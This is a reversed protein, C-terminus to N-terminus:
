SLHDKPEVSEVSGTPGDAPRDDAAIAWQRGLAWPAGPDVCVLQYVSFASKEFAVAAGAMFARWIRYVSDGGAAIASEKNRELNEIWRRLTLAYNVRLAEADRVEWGAREALEISREVPVLEGDPFVYTSIFSPRHVSPLRLGEKPRHRQSIGHNLLAGGPRVLHRLHEFYGALRGRGVHEFMGVSAVADFDGDLDRYDRELITVRDTLGLDKVRRRAYEAQAPSLTTGVAEAGYDRAARIALAGWGCGVDLFRQGPQLQLKRLVLDLKRAQAADLPEDPRLFYACSYVMEEGLFQEYFENGTDYHSRVAARDRTRSHRRGQMQPRVAAKRRAQDPLRRLLRLMKLATLPKGLREAAADAFEVMATVDGEIDIDDHIYAEGAALDNAPLLLARLAGPHQLVITAAADDAGWREGDWLRLAPARGPVAAVMEDYIAKSVQKPDM